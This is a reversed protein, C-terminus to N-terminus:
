SEAVPRSIALSKAAGLPSSAQIKYADSVFWVFNWITLAGALTSDVESRVGTVSSIPAGPSVRVQAVYLELGGCSSDSVSESFIVMSGQASRAVGSVLWLLWINMYLPVDPVSSGVQFEASPALVAAALGETLWFEVLEDFAVAVDEATWAAAVNNALRASVGCFGVFCFEDTISTNVGIFAITVSTPMWSFEVVVPVVIVMVLVTVTKLTSDIDVLTGDEVDFVAWTVAVELARSTWSTPAGIGDELAVPVVVIPDVETDVDDLVAVSDISADAMADLIAADAELADASTDEVVILEEVSLPDGLEVCAAWRRSFSLNNADRM